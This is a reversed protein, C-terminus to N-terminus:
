NTEALARELARRAHSLGLDVQHAEEPGLPNYGPNSSTQPFIVRGIARIIFDPASPIKNFLLEYHQGGWSEGCDGTNPALCEIILIREGDVSDKRMFAFYMGSPFM